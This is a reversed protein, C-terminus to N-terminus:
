KLPYGLKRAQAESPRRKRPIETVTAIRLDRVPVNRHEAKTTGDDNLEHWEANFNDLTVIQSVGDSGLQQPYQAIVGVTGTVKNFALAGQRPFTKQAM